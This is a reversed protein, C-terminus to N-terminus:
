LLFPPFLFSTSALTLSLVLILSHWALQTQGINTSHEDNEEPTERAGKDYGDYLKAVFGGLLLGSVLYAVAVLLLIEGNATLTSPFALRYTRFQQSKLSTRKTSFHARFKLKCGLAVARFLRHLLEVGVLDIM